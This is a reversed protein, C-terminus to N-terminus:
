CFGESTHLIHKSHIMSVKVDQLKTAKVLWYFSNGSHNYCDIHAYTFELFSVLQLEGPVDNCIYM